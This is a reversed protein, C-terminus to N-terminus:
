NFQLYEWTGDNQQRGYGVAGSIGGVLYQVGSLRVRKNRLGELGLLENIRNLFQYYPIFCQQGFYHFVTIHDYHNQATLLKNTTKRNSTTM